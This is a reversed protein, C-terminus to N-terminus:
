PRQDRQDLAWEMSAWPNRDLAPSVTVTGSQVTWTELRNIAAPVEGRYHPARMFTPAPGGTVHLRPFALVGAWPPRADSAMVGEGTWGFLAQSFADLSDSWGNGLVALIAPQRASRGQRRKRPDLWAGEVRPVADSAGGATGWGAVPGWDAALLVVEVREDGLRAHIEVRTGRAPEPLSRYEARLLNRLPKTSDHGSLPPLRRPWLAWGDPVDRGLLDIVRAQKAMSTGMLVDFPPAMAEVDLHGDAFTARWDVRTGESSAPHRVLDDAGRLQLFRGLLLEFETAPTRDTRLDRCIDVAAPEPLAAIHLNLVRRHERANDWTSRALYEPMTEGVPRMPTPDNAEPEPFCRGEITM